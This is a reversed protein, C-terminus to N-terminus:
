LYISKLEPKELCDVRKVLLLLIRLSHRRIDFSDKAKMVKSIFTM